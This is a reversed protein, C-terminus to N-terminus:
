SGTDLLYSAIPSGVTASATSSRMTWVAWWISSVPSLMRLILAPLYPSIFIGGGALAKQPDFYFRKRPDACSRGRPAFVRPKELIVVDGTYAESNNPRAYCLCTVTANTGSFNYYIKNIKAQYAFSQLVAFLSLLFTLLIKKM